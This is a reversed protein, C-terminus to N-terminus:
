PESGVSRQSARLRAARDHFLERGRRLRSAVSGPAVGLLRAIEAMTLEELEFLTFVARVKDPMVDLIQDLMARAQREAALQEPTAAVFAMSQAAAAGEGATRRRRARRAESAVRLAIGYLFSKENGTVIREQKRAAVLFVQQAADDVDIESVGLRRLSRAIFGFHEDVLARITGDVGTMTAMPALEVMLVGGKGTM